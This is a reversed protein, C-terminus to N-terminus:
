LDDGASKEQELDDGVVAALEIADSLVSPSASADLKINFYIDGGGTSALSGVTLDSSKQLAWQAISNPVPGGGEQRYVVSWIERTELGMVRNTNSFILVIHTRDDGTRVTLRFNGDENINYEWNEQELARRVRPDSSTTGGVQAFTSTPILLIILSFLVTRPHTVFVQTKQHPYYLYKLM